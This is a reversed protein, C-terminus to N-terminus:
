DDDLGMNKLTQDISTGKNIAEPKLYAEFPNAESLFHDFGTKRTLFEYLSWRYTLWHDPSERIAKYNWIAEKIKEISYFNLKATLNPKYKQFEKHKIIGQSNWFDFLVRERSPKNENKDNNANNDNNDTSSPQWKGAVQNGSPQEKPHEEEKSRLQYEEYNCITVLSYHTDSKININGITKLKLLRKYVSSPKQNVEGAVKNRGFIFQGRELYIETDGRGTTVTVWHPRHNSRLLCYTWLQWLKANTFIRSDLSKRWLCIYGRHM